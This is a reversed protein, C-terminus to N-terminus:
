LAPESAALGRSPLFSRGKRFDLCVCVEGDHDGAHKEGVEIGIYPGPGLHCPGIYLVVGMMDRCLVRSHIGFPDLMPGFPAPARSGRFGERSPARRLPTTM